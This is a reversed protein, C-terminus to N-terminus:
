PFFPAPEGSETFKNLRGVVRGWTYNVSALDTAPLEQPWGEHKFWVENSGNKSPKIEWSVTTGRWADFGGHTSWRVLEGPKLEDIKMELNPGGFGFRAISGAKPEAHSDATWFSALGKSTSLAEYIKNADADILVM